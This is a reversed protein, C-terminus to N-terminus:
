LTSSAVLWQIRKGQMKCITGRVNKNKKGKNYKIKHKSILWMLRRSM